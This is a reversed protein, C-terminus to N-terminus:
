PLVPGAEESLGERLIALNFTLLGQAESLLQGRSYATDVWRIAEDSFRVVDANNKSSVARAIEEILRKITSAESDELIWGQKSGVDLFRFLNQAVQQPTLRDAPLGPGITVGYPIKWSLRDIADMLEEPVDESSRLTEVFGKAYCGVITPVGKSRFRFGIAAQGPELGLRGSMTQSWAWGDETRFVRKLYPTFQTSYWTQDPNSGSTIGSGSTVYFSQLKQESGAMSRVEYTYEFLRASKDYSVTGIVEATVRNPPVWILKKREGDAGNWELSYNGAKQNTTVKGDLAYQVPKHTVPDPRFRMGTPKFKAEEDPPRVLLKRKAIPSQGPVSSVAFLLALSVCAETFRIPKM